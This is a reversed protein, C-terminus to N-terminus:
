QKVWHAKNVIAGVTSQAYIDIGTNSSVVWSNNLVNLPAQAFSFIDLVGTNYKWNGQSVIGSNNATLAFDSSFQFVYSDFNSKNEVGNTEFSALKYKSYTDIGSIEALTDEKKGCAVLFMVGIFLIKIFRM